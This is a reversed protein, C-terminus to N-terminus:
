SKGMNKIAINKPLAPNEATSEITEAIAELDPFLKANIDIREKGIRIGNSMTVIRNEFFAM